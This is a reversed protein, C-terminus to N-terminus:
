YKSRPALDTHDRAEKVLANWRGHNLAVRRRNRKGVTKINKELEDIWRNRPHRRKGMGYVQAKVITKPVCEESM